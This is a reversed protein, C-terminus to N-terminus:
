STRRYSRNIDSGFKVEPSLVKGKKAASGDKNALKGKQNDM